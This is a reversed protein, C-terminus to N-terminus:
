SLVVIHGKTGLTDLMVNYEKSKLGSTQQFWKVCGTNILWFKDFNILNLFEHKNYILIENIELLKLLSNKTQADITWKWNPHLIDKIKPCCFTHECIM